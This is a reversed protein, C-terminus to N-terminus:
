FDDTFEGRSVKVPIEGESGIEIIDSGSRSDELALAEIRDAINLAQWENLRWVFSQEIKRLGFEHDAPVITLPTRPRRDNVRPVGRPKNPLMPRIATWEYEALEYRMIRDGLKPSQIM